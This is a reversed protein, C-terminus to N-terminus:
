VDDHIYSELVEAFKRLEDVLYRKNVWYYIEQGVKESSLMKADKLVKLHHSIAPRSITFHSSIEGVNLRNGEFAFLIKLRTPQGVAILFQTVAANDLEM